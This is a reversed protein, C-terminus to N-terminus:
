SSKLYELCFQEAVMRLYDHANTISDGLDKAKSKLSYVAKIHNENLEKESLKYDGSVIVIPIRHKSCLKVLDGVAKGQFSQSDLMGEGSVVFDAIRVKDELSLIDSLYQFGSQLKVNDFLGYLGAAVGGAAGGGKLTNIDKGTTKKILKVIHEMGEELMQIDNSDAGKQPGFVHAAGNLGLLKNDVDCLLTLKFQRNANPPIIQFIDSLNAGCPNLSNQKIDVFRYGLEYAIGLGVDNSCSGGLGLVIDDFGDDLAQKILRGTGLTNFNKVDLENDDLLAIGSVQALEIFAKKEITYYTGTNSRGLPDETDVNNANLSLEEKLILLTGDGGDAIPQTVCSIGTSYHSIVESLTECVEKATLSGKFKDCALLVNM